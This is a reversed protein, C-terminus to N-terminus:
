SGGKVRELLAATLKDIANQSRKRVRPLGPVMAKLRPDVDAMCELAECAGDAGLLADLVEQLLKTQTPDFVLEPIEWKGMLM